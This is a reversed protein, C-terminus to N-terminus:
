VVYPPGSAEVVPIDTRPELEKTSQIIQVLRLVKVNEFSNEHVPYSSEFAAAQKHGGGGRRRAFEEVDFAGSSRLAYVYVGRSGDFWWGVGFDGGQAILGAVESRIGPLTNCVVAILTKQEDKIFVSQALKATNAVQKNVWRLIAQGPEVMREFGKGLEQKWVSLDDYPLASLFANIARSHHLQFRWLDRDEAYRAFDLLHSWGRCFYEYSMMAGSQDMNIRALLNETDSFAFCTRDERARTILAAPDACLQKYATLHHDLVVVKHAVGALQKLQETPYSFDLVYIAKGIALDVPPAEGYHAPFGECNETGLSQEACLYAILGDTCDRHYIVLSKM